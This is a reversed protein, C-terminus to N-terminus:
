SFTTFQQWADESTLFAHADDELVDKRIVNNGEFCMCATDRCVKKVVDLDMIRDVGATRMIDNLRSAIRDGLPANVAASSPNGDSDFQLVVTGSGEMCDGAFNQDMWGEYMALELV